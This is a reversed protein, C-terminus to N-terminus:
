CLFTCWIHLESCSVTVNLDGFQTSFLLKEDYLSVFFCASLTWFKWLRVSYMKTGNPPWWLMGYISSHTRSMNSPSFEMPHIRLALGHKWMRVFCLWHLGVRCVISSHEFIKNRYLIGTLPCCFLLSEHFHIRFLLLYM